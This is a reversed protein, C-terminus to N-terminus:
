EKDKKILPHMAGLKQSVGDEFGFDNQPRGSIDSLVQVFESLNKEGLDNHRCKLLRIYKRNGVKEFFKLSLVREYGLAELQFYINEVAICKGSFTQFTDKFINFGGFSWSRIDVSISYLGGLVCWFCIFAMFYDEYVLVFDLFKNFLWMVAIFVLINKLFTYFTDPTCNVTYLLTSEISSSTEKNNFM